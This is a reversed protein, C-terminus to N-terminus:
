YQYNEKRSQEKLFFTAKLNLFYIRYICANKGLLVVLLKVSKDKLLLALHSSNPYPKLQCNNSRKNSGNM